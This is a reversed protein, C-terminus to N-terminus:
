FEAEYGTTSVVNIGEQAMADEIGERVATYLAETDTSSDANITVNNNITGGVTQSGTSAAPTAPEPTLRDVWAQHSNWPQDFEGAEEMERKIKAVTLDSKDFSKAHGADVIQKDLDDAQKELKDAEEYKWVRRYAAARARLEDAQMGKAIAAKHFLRSEPSWQTVAQGIWGWFSAWKSPKVKLDDIPVGKYHTKKGGGGSIADIVSWVAWSGLDGVEAIALSVQDMTTTWMLSITAGLAAREVRSRSLKKRAVKNAEAVRKNTETHFDELLGISPDVTPWVEEKYKMWSAGVARMANAMFGTKGRAIGIQELSLNPDGDMAKHLRLARMSASSYKYRTMQHIMPDTKEMIGALFKRENLEKNIVAAVGDWRKLAKDIDYGGDERTMYSTVIYEHTRAFEKDGMPRYNGGFRRKRTPYDETIAGHIGEGLLFAAEIAWGIPGSMIRWARALFGLSKATNATSAIAKATSAEALPFPNAILARSSAGPSAVLARSPAGLDAIAGSVTSPTASKRGRVWDWIGKAGWALFGVQAITGLVGLTTFNGPDVISAGKPRGGSMDGFSPVDGGSAQAEGSLAAWLAWLAIAIAAVKGGKSGIARQWNTPLKGKAGQAAAGAQFNKLGKIKDVGKGGLSALSAGLGMGTKNRIGKLMGPIAPLFMAWMIAESWGPSLFSAAFTGAALTAFAGVPSTVFHGLRRGKRGWKKRLKGYDADMFPLDRLFRGAAFLGAAAGGFIWKPLMSLHGPATFPRGLLKDKDLKRITEDMRFSMYRKDLGLGRILSLAPYTLFASAAMGAKSWFGRPGFKTAGPKPKGTSDWETPILTASNVWEAILTGWGKFWRGIPIIQRRTRRKQADSFLWKYGALLGLAGSGFIWGARGAMGGKKGAEEVKGADPAPVAGLTAYHAMKQALYITREMRGILYEFPSTIWTFLEGISMVITKLLRYLIRWMDVMVFRFAASILGVVAGGVVGISGYAAGLLIKLAASIVTPISMLAESIIATALRSVAIGVGIMRMPNNLPMLFYGLWGTLVAGLRGIWLVAARFSRGFFSAIAATFEAGGPGTFNNIIRNFTLGVLGAIGTILGLIAHISAVVAHTFGTVASTGAAMMPILLGFLTGMAGASFLFGKREAILHYIGKLDGPKSGMARWNSITSSVTNVYVGSIFRALNGSIMKAAKYSFWIGAAGAIVQVVSNGVFSFATTMGNKIANSIRGPIVASVANAMMEVLGSAFDKAGYVFSKLALNLDYDVVAGIASALLDAFADRMAKALLAVLGQVFDKAKTIYRDLTLMLDDDVIKGLTRAFITDEAKTDAKVDERKLFKTFFGESRVRENMRIWDGIFDGSYKKVLLFASAIAGLGGVMAMLPRAAFMGLMGGVPGLLKALVWLAAGLGLFLPGLQLVYGISKKTKEPLENFRERILDLIETVRELPPIVYRGVAISLQMLSQKLKEFQLWSRQQAFAKEISDKSTENIQDSLERLSKKTVSTIFQMAEVRGLLINMLEPDKQKRELYERKKVETLKEYEEREAKSLRRSLIDFEEYLSALGQESAIKRLKAYSSGLKELEKQANGAPALFSQLFSRFQTAGITANPAVRSVAALGAATDKIGLGMTNALGAVQKFANAYERTEGEGIQAARTITDIAQKGTVGFVEILTTAASVQQDIEGVGSAASKAAAEVLNLAKQGAVGASIAKQIGDYVLGLAQGTERAIRKSHEGYEKEVQKFTQGTRSAIRALGQEYVKSFTTFHTAQSAALSGGVKFFTRSLKNLSGQLRDIGKEIESLASKDYRFKFETVFREIVNENAM